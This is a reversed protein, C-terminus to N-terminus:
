SFLEPFIKELEIEIFNKTEPYEITLKKFLDVMKKFEGTDKLNLEIEGIIKGM